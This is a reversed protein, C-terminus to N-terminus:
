GRDNIRGTDDWIFPFPAHCEIGHRRDNLGEAEHKQPHSIHVTLTQQHTSKSGGKRNTNHAARQTKAASQNAQDIRRGADVLFSYLTSFPLKTKTESSTVYQLQLLEM